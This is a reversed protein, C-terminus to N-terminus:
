QYLKLRESVMKEITNKGNKVLDSVLNSDPDIIIRTMGQFHTFYRGQTAYPLSSFAYRKKTLYEHIRAGTDYNIRPPRHGCVKKRFGTKFIRKARYYFRKPLLRFENNIDQHTFSIGAQLAQKIPATKYAVIPTFPKPYYLIGLWKDGGVDSPKIIGGNLFFGAGYVNEKKIEENLFNMLGDNLLELDSDILLLADEETDRFIRDLTKGHPRFPATILEFSHKQQLSRFYELSGDTSDCDILTVPCGAYRLASLLALSTVLKTNHNIIIARM